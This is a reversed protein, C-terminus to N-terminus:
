ASPSVKKTTKSVPKSAVMPPPSLTKPLNSLNTAAEMDRAMALSARNASEAFLLNLWGNSIASVLALNALATTNGSELLALVAPHIPIATLPVQAPNSAIAPSHPMGKLKLNDIVSSSTLPSPSKNNNESINSAPLKEDHKPEGSTKHVPGNVRTSEDLDTTSSAQSEESSKEGCSPEKKYHVYRIAQKTKELAVSDPVIEYLTEHNLGLSRIRSKCLKNLFRGKKAKIDRVIKNVIRKKEKRSPTNIYSAKLDEVTERFLVNGQNMSPGTGRGLMVDFSGVASVYRQNATESKSTSSETVKNPM